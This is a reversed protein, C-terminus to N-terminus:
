VLLISIVLSIVALFYAQIGLSTGDKIGSPCWSPPLISPARDTLSLRPATERGCSGLMDQEPDTM